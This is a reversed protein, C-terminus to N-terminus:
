WLVACVVGFAVADVFPDYPSYYGYPTYGYYSGWAGYGYGYGFADYGGYGYGYGADVIETTQTTTTDITGEPMSFDIRAGCGLCTRQRGHVPTHCSPCEWGDDEGGSVLELRKFEADCAPNPCADLTRGEEKANMEFIALPIHCKSCELGDRKRQELMGATYLAQMVDDIEDEEGVDTYHYASDVIEEIERLPTGLKLDFWVNEKKFEGDALKQMFVVRHPDLQMTGRLAEDDSDNMTDALYAMMALRMDETGLREAEADTEPAEFRPDYVHDLVNGEDDVLDDPLEMALNVTAFIEFKLCQDFIAVMKDRVERGKATAEWYGTKENVRLLDKAHMGRLDEEIFAYPTGDTDLPIKDGCEMVRYLVTLWLCEQKWDKEEAM